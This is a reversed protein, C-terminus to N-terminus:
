ALSLFFSATFMRLQSVFVEEGSSVRQFGRWFPPVVSPSDSIGMFILM